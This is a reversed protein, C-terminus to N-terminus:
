LSRGPRAVALRRVVTQDRILGIGIGLPFLFSLTASANQPVGDHVAALLFIVAPVGLGFVAACSLLPAAEVGLRVRAAVLGLTAAGLALGLAAASTAHTWSTAAPDGLLWQMSIAAALSVAWVIPLARRAFAAPADAVVLAFQLLAAPLLAATLAHLRLSSGPPYLDAASLMFLGGVGGVLLLARGLRQAPLAWAALIALLLYCLGSVLYAGFVAWYDGVSFRRSPITVTTTTAGDSVVYTLPSGVPKSAVRRHLDDGDTIVAGDVAIVTRDYFRPSAPNSWQARGVPAVSRDALVFFGAFPRDIWSRAGVAILATLAVAMLAAVLFAGDSFRAAPHRRPALNAHRM